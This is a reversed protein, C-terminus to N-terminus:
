EQIQRWFEEENCFLLAYLWKLGNLRYVEEEIDRNAQWFAKSEKPGSEYVGVNFWPVVTTSDKSIFESEVLYMPLLHGQDLPCLSIPYMGFKQDIWNIFEVANPAPLGLNQVIYKRALGSEHFARYITRTHMLPNLLYGPSGTSHHGFINFHMNLEGFHVETM